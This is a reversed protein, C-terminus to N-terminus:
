LTSTKLLTVPLTPLLSVADNTQPTLELGVGFLAISSLMGLLPGALSLQLLDQRTPLPKQIRNITTSFGTIPNPIITPLSIKLNNKLAVGYHGFEHLLQTVILGNRIVDSQSSM